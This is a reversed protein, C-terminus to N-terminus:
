PASTIMRKIGSFRQAGSNALQTNYHQNEYFVVRKSSISRLPKGLRSVCELEAVCLNCVELFPGRYLVLSDGRIVGGGGEGRSSAAAKTSSDLPSPPPPSGTKVVHHKEREEKRMRETRKRREKKKTRRGKQEWKLGPRSLETPHPVRPDCPTPHCAQHGNADRAVALLGDASERQGIETKPPGRPNRKGHALM